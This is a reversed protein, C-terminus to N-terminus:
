KEGEAIRKIVEELSEESEAKERLIEIIITFIELEEKYEEMWEENSYRNEELKSIYNKYEKKKNANYKDELLKIHWNIGIIEEEYQSIRDKCIRIKQEIYDVANELRENLEWIVVRMEESM